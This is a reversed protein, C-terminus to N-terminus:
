HKKPESFLPVSLAVHELCQRTHTETRIDEKMKLNQNYVKSIVTFTGEPISITKTQLKDITGTWQTNGNSLVQIETTESEAKFRCPVDAAFLVDYVGIIGAVTLLIVLFVLTSGRSMQSIRLMANRKKVTPWPWPSGGIHGICILLGADAMAVFV